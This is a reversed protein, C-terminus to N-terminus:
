FASSSGSPGLVGTLNVNLGALKEILVQVYNDNMEGIILPKDANSRIAQGVVENDKLITLFLPKDSSQLNRVLSDALGLILNNESEHCLLQHENQELFHTANPNQICKIM